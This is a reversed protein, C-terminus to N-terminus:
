NIIFDLYIGTMLALASTIFIIIYIWKETSVKLSKFVYAAAEKDQPLLDSSQIKDDLQQERILKARSETIRYRHAFYIVFGITGIYWFLNVWYKSTGSFVIIVRYAITALVGVVFYFLRIPKAHPQPTEM